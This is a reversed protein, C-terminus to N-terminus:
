DKWLTIRVYAGEIRLDYDKFKSERIAKGVKGLIYDETKYGIHMYPWIREIIWFPLILDKEIGFRKVTEKLEEKTCDKRGDYIWAEGRHKLIRYIEDFARKPEKLHHVLGTSLVLVVTNDEFCLNYASGVNFEVRDYVGENKANRKAIKIMDESIDVGFVKANVVQKAIEIPLRGPGTGIDLIIGSIKRDKIETAICKFWKVFMQNICRDYFRNFPWPIKEPM